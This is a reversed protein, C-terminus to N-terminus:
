FTSKGGRIADGTGGGAGGSVFDAPPAPDTPSTADVKAKSIVQVKVSENGFANVSSVFFSTTSPTAGSNSPVEAFLTGADQVAMVLTHENDRYVRYASIPTEPRKWTLQVKSNGSQAQVDRPPDPTLGTGRVRVSDEAQKRLLTKQELTAGWGPRYLSRM